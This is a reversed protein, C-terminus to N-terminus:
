GKLMCGEAKKQMCVTEETLETLDAYETGSNIHQKHLLWVSRNAHIFWCKIAVTNESCLCFNTNHDEPSNNWTTKYTYIKTGNMWLFMSDQYEPNFHTPNHHQNTVPSGYTNRTQLM